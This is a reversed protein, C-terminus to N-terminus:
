SVGAGLEGAAERRYALLDGRREVVCRRTREPRDAEAGPLAAVQDAGQGAMRAGGVDLGHQDLQVLAVHERGAGGGFAGAQGAHLRDGAVGGVGGM